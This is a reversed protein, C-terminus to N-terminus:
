RMVDPQGAAPPAASATSSQRSFVTMAIGGLIMTGAGILRLTIREDLVAVGAAASLVPVALQVTAARIATLDRLAAYWVVYGLASTVGGSTVALLVGTASLVFPSPLATATMAIAGVALPVGRVFNGTTARLPNGVGRGRITYLGWAVGAGVMLLSGVLPPAALGPAVLYSLGALAALLGAWELPRAREGARVAALIITVQVAGFLLLAGIGAELRVYALSFTMAYVVLAVASRWSGSTHAGRAGVIAACLLLVAAGSAIRIVTFSSADITGGSLALRCLISNSAFAVLAAATTLALRTASAGRRGRAEDQSHAPL